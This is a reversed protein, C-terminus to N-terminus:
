GVTSLGHEHKRLGGVMLSVLEPVDMIELYPALFVPTDGALVGPRHSFHAPLRPLFVEVLFGNIVFCISIFRDFSRGFPAAIITRLSDFSFGGPTSDRLRYTAVTLVSGRVNSGTQLATHLEREWIPPLDINRYNEHHSVSARWLLSLFFMRFRKRDVGRFSVGAEGRQVSCKQGKLVGIGYDDYARNLKDECSSCLLNAGWTDSSYRVPTDIDDVISIAKGAGERLLHRFASDPLAHSYCLDRFEECLKCLGHEMSM